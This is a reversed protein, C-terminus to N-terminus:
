VIQKRTSILRTWPSIQVWKPSMKNEIYAVQMFGMEILAELMEKAKRKNVDFLVELYKRIELDPVASEIYKLEQGHPKFLGRKIYDHITWTRFNLEKSLYEVFDRFGDFDKSRILRVMEM